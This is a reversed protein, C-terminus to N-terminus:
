IYKNIDKTLFSWIDIKEEKMNGSNDYAIVRLRHKHGLRQNNPERWHWLYPPSTDSYVLFGDLIFDVQNIGSENDFANAELNLNGITVANFFSMIKKGNVYIADGPKIIKLSPPTFDGLFFTCTGRNNDPKIDMNIPVNLIPLLIMNEVQVMVNVIEGETIRELYLPFTVEYKESGVVINKEQKFEDIKVTIRYFIKNFRWSNSQDISFRIEYKNCDTNTDYASVKNEEIYTDILLPFFRRIKTHIIKGFDIINTDNDESSVISDNILSTDSKLDSEILNIKNLSFASSPPVFMM